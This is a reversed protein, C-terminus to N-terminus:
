ESQIAWMEKKRLGNIWTILDFYCQPSLASQLLQQFSENRMVSELWQQDYSVKDLHELTDDLLQRRRSADKFDAFQFAISFTVLSLLTVAKIAANAAM